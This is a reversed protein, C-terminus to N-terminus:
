GIALRIFDRRHIVLEVITSLSMSAAQNALRHIRGNSTFCLRRLNFHQVSIFWQHIAIRKRCITHSPGAACRYPNVLEDPADKM